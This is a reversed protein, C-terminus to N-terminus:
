RHKQISQGSSWCATQIPDYWHDYSPTDWWNSTTPSTTFIFSNTGAFKGSEDRSMEPEQPKLTLPSPISGMPIGVQVIQYSTTTRAVRLEFLGTTPTHKYKYNTQTKNKVKKNKNYNM